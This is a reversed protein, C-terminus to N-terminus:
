AKIKESGNKKLIVINTDYYHIFFPCFHCLNKNQRIAFDELNPNSDLLM